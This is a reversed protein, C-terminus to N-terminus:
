RVCKSSLAQTRGGGKTAGDKLRTPTPPRPGLSIPLQMNRSPTRSKSL